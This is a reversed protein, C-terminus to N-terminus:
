VAAALQGDRHQAAKAGRAYAFLVQGRTGNGNRGVQSAAMRWRGAPVARPVALRGASSLFGQIDASNEPLHRVRPHPPFGCGLLLPIFLFGLARPSVVVQAPVRWLETASPIQFPNFLDIRKQNPPRLSAIELLLAARAPAHKENLGGRM